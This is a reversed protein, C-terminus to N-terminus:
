QAFEQRSGPTNSADLSLERNHNEILVEFHVLIDEGLMGALAQSGIRLIRLNSLSALLRTSSDHGMQARTVQAEAGASNRNCRSETHLAPILVAALVFPAFRKFNTM